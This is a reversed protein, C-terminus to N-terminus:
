SSKCCHVKGWSEGCLTGFFVRDQRAFNKQTIPAEAAKSLTSIIVFEINLLEVAARLTIEDDFTRDISMRKLYNSFSTDITDNSDNPNVKLYSVIEARLAEPSCQFGFDRM